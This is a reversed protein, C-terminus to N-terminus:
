HADQVTKLKHDMDQKVQTLQEHFAEQKQDMDEEKRAAGLVRPEVLALDACVRASM